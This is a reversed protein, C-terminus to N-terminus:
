GSIFKLSLISGVDLIKFISTIKKLFKQYLHGTQLTLYNCTKQQMRLGSPNIINTSDQLLFGALYIPDAHSQCLHSLAPQYSGLSTTLNM